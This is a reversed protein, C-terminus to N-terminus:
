IKYTVRSSTSILSESTGKENYTSALAQQFFDRSLDLNRKIQTLIRVHKQLDQAVQFFGTQLRKVLFSHSKLFDPQEMWSNLWDKLHDRRVSQPWSQDVLSQFRLRERKRMELNQLVREKEPLQEELKNLDIEDSVYDRESMELFQEYLALEKELCSILQSEIM